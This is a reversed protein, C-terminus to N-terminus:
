IWNNEDKVVQLFTVNLIELHSMVRFYQSAAIQMASFTKMIIQTGKLRVVKPSM